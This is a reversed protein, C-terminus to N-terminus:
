AFFARAWRTASPSLMTGVARGPAEVGANPYCALFRSAIANIDLSSLEYWRQLILVTASKLCRTERQTLAYRSPEPESGSGELKTM